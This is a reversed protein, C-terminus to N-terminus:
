TSVRMRIPERIELRRINAPLGQSWETLRQRSNDSDGRRGEIFVRWCPQATRAAVAQEGKIEERDTTQHAPRARPTADVGVRHKWRGAGVKSRFGDELLSAGLGSGYACPFDDAFSGSCDRDRSESLPGPQRSEASGIEYFYKTAIVAVVVGLWDAIANGFFSGGHTKPDARSYLLIWLLLIGIATFSLAHDKFFAEKRISSRARSM